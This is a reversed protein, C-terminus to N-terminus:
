LLLVSLSSFRARLKNATYYFSRVQRNIDIDDKLNNELLVGLYKVKKVFIINNSNLYVNPEFNVNIFSTSCNFMVGVTKTHNFIIDHSAAYKECISLLNHLGHHVSPCICCLDVAFLIHNVKTNGLYCGVAQNNLALSLDYCNALQWKRISHKSHQRRYASFFSVLFNIAIESNIIRSLSSM